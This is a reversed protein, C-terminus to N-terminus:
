KLATRIESTSSSLDVASVMGFKYTTTFKPYNRTFTSLMLKQSVAKKSIDSVNDIEFDDTSSTIADITLSTKFQASWMPEKDKPYYMERTTFEM